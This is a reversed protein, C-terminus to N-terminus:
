QIALQALGDAHFAAYSSDIPSDSNYCMKWENCQYRYIKIIGAKSAAIQCDDSAVAGDQIMKRRCRCQCGM